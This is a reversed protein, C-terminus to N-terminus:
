KRKKKTQQEQQPQVPKPQAAKPQIPEATPTYQMLPQEQTVYPVFAVPQVIPMMQYPNGPAYYGQMPQGQVPMQGPMPPPYAGQYPSYGYYPNPASPGSFDQPKGKKQEEKVEEKPENEFRKEFEDLSPVRPVDYKQAPAPIIDQKRKVPPSQKIKGKALLLMARAKSRGCHTCATADLPNITGCAPCVYTEGEINDEDIQSYPDAYYASYNKLAESMKQLLAVDESGLENIKERYAGLIAKRKELDEEVKLKYQDIEQRAIENEENARARKEEIEKDVAAMRDREMNDLRMKTKRADMMIEEAHTEKEIVIPAGCSVCFLAGPLNKSGCVACVPKRMVALIGGCKACYRSGAGNKSSCVPCVTEYNDVVDAGCTPCFAQGQKVENGCIKCVFM